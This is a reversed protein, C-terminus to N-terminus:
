NKRKTENEHQKLIEECKEKWGFQHVLVFPTKFNRMFRYEEDNDDLHFIFNDNEKFFTHKYEMNNFHIHEKPIGLREMTGKIDDHTVYHSYKSPDEWRTTVIWIEYGKEILEKAYEEIHEYELTGDYDFSIKKM